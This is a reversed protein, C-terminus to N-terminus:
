SFSYLKLRKLLLILCHSDALIHASTHYLLLVYYKLLSAPLLHVAAAQVQPQQQWQM